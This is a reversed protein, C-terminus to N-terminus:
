KPTLLNQRTLEGAIVQAMRRHAAASPHNDMPNLSFEAVSMEDEISQAEIVPVGLARVKQAIKGYVDNRFQRRASASEHEAGPMAQWMAPFPLIAFVPRANMARVEAILKEIDGLHKAMIEPDAYAGHVTRSYEKGFDAYVGPALLRWYFSNSTPTLLSVRQWFPSQEATFKIVAYRDIDNALYGILVIDPQVKAADQAILLEEKTDAGARGFNLVTIPGGNRGRLDAELLNTFRHEQGCIGQGWTWSDGVAAIVLERGPQRPELYPAVDREWYSLQNSRAYRFHWNMHTFCDRGGLGSTDCCFAMIGLDLVALILTLSAAVMAGHSLVSRWWAQERRVLCFALFAFQGALVLYVGDFVFYWSHPYLGAKAFAAAVHGGVIAALTITLTCSQKVM